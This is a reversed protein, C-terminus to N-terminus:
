CVTLVYQTSGDSMPNGACDALRKKLDDTIVSPIERASIDQFSPRVGGGGPSLAEAVALTM